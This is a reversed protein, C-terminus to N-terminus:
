VSAGRASSMMTIGHMGDSAGYFRRMPAALTAISLLAGM